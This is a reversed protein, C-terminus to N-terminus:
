QSLFTFKNRYYFINRAFFPSTVIFLNTPHVLVVDIEDVHVNLQCKEGLYVVVASNLLKVDFCFSFWHLYVSSVLNENVHM